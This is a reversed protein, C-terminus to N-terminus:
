ITTMEFFDAVVSMTKINHESTAKKIEVMKEQMKAENRAVICINFGKAALKHCIDLGYGDTGGTVVAWSRNESNNGYRAYLDQERRFVHRWLFSLCQSAFRTVCFLGYGACLSFLLPM